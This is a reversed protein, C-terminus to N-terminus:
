LFTSVPTRFPLSRAGAVLTVQVGTAEDRRPHKSKNAFALITALDGRLEIALHDNEPVLRIEEILSRIIETAEQRIGEDNLGEKLAAVKQRYVEALNPHLRPVPPPDTKIAAELEGKRAELADMEAKMAPHFMGAKIAEIVRRIDHTVADLERKRCAKDADEHRMLRNMERHFEAIFEKVLEPEMLHTRLGDLVTEELTSRRIVRMNTCVTKGRNRANSCGYHHTDTM